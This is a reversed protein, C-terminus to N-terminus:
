RKINKLNILLDMPSVRNMTKEGTGPKAFGPGQEHIRRQGQKFDVPQGMSWDSLLSVCSPEPGTGLRASDPGQQHIRKGQKFDVPQGMSWDTLMSVCSPGPGASDPIQQHFRRCVCSM